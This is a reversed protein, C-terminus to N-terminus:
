DSEPLHDEDDFSRLRRRGLRGTRDHFLASRAAGEVLPKLFREKIAPSGVKGLLYMNGEDPANTNCALPGLPSLGSRILVTATERQTLHEGDDLIHPSLVGAARAHEKLEFVLADTPAGHHDRRPDREYPVVVERVFQEVRDAIALARPTSVLDPVEHPVECPNAM